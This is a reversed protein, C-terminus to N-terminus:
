KVRRRDPGDMTVRQCMEALRSRIRDGLLVKLDDVPLNTTIITPLCERYRHDILRYTIEETWESAKAAGLDDLLLLDANAFREFGAEGEGSPRALAYLDPVTTARISVTFGVRAAAYLAAFAAHTKGVGTVGLLLLGRPPCGNHAEYQRVWEAVEPLNTTVRHFRRPAYKDVVAVAHEAVTARQRRWADEPEPLGIPTVTM